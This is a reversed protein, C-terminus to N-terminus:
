SGGTYGAAFHIVFYSWLITSLLLVVPYGLKSDKFKNLIMWQVPFAMLSYRSFGAFNGGIIPLIVFLLSFIAMSKKRSWWYITSLIVLSFTILDVPTFSNIITHIYHSSLWHSGRQAKVFLLPSGKSIWLYLLYGELGTFGIVFSILIEWLKSKSEYLIIAIFVPIFVGTPHTATALASMGGAALYSKKTAFYISSLALFAFLSETYTAALFIATPFFLFLLVGQITGVKDQGLWEKLIKLYFYLAGFLSLWSVALASILPSSFIYIFLRIVLPYLPFFATLSKDAYGHQAITLYHPGDWESMFSLKNSPESLYRANPDNNGPIVLNSYYGLGLTVVVFCLTLALAIQANNANSLRKKIKEFSTM